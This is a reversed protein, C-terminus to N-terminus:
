NNGHLWWQFRSQNPMPQSTPRPAPQYSSTGSTPQSSQTPSKRRNKAREYFPATSPSNQAGSAKKKRKPPKSAPPVEQTSPGPASSQQTSPVHAQETRAQKAKRRTAARTFNAHEKNGATNNNTCKRKNHGQTGCSSCTVQTGARSM